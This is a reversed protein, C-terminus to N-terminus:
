ETRQIMVTDSVSIVEDVRMHEFVAPSCAFVYEKVKVVGEDLEMVSNAKIVVIFEKM